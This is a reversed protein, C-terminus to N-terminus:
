QILAKLLGPVAQRTSSPSISFIQLKSKIISKTKHTLAGNCQNGVWKLHSIRLNAYM